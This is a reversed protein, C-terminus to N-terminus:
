AGDGLSERMIALASQPWYTKEDWGPSASEMRYCAITECDIELEPTAWTSALYVSAEEKPVPKGSVFIPGGTYEWDGRLGASADTVGREKIIRAAKDRDFVMRERHRNM